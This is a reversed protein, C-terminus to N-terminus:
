NLGTQRVDAGPIPYRRCDRRELHERASGFDDVLPLLHDPDLIDLLREVDRDGVVMWDVDRRTCCVAIFHLASFGQAGFFEVARLDLLLQMTPRLQREVYRGLDRSNTADIEGEVTVVLLAPFYLHASYRARGPAEPGDVVSGLSTRSREGVITM